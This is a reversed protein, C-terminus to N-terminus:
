KPEGAARAATCAPCPCVARLAEFTYYGTDHGDGWVPAIAYTGVLRMDVLQTQQEKLEPMSDLWGPSGGEGRCFACPCLWRLAVSTYRSTHGDAWDITVLGQERQANIAVPQNATNTAM